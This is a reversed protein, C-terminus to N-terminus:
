DTLHVDRAALCQPGDVVPEVREADSEDQGVGFAGHAVRQTAVPDDVDEALVVECRGDVAGEFGDGRSRDVLAVALLALLWRVRVPGSWVGGTMFRLTWTITSALRVSQFTMESDLPLSAFWTTTTSPCWSAM